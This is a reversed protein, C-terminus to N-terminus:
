AESSCHTSNHSVYESFIYKLNNAKEYSDYIMEQFCENCIKGHKNFSEAEKEIECELCKRLSM